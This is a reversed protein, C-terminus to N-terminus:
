AIVWGKEQYAAVDKNWVNLVQGSRSHTMLVRHPPITPQEPEAPADSTTDDVPGTEAPREPEEASEVAEGLDGGTSVEIDAGGMDEEAGAEIATTVVPQAAEAEALTKEPTGAVAPKDLKAWTGNPNRKPSGDKKVAHIAPDFEVGDSDLVPDTM